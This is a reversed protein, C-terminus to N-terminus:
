IGSGFKIIIKELMHNQQSTLNTFQAGIYELGLKEEKLTYIVYADISMNFTQTIKFELKLERRSESKIAYPYFVCLEHVGNELYGRCLSCADWAFCIGSTSIDVSFAPYKIETLQDNEFLSFGMTITIPVRISGRREDKVEIEDDAPVFFGSKTICKLCLKEKTKAHETLKRVERGCKECLAV